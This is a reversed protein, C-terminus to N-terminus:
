SGLVNSSDVYVHTGSSPVFMEDTIDSGNSSADYFVVAVGSLNHRRSENVGGTVRVAFEERLQGGPAGRQNNGGIIELKAYGYIYTVTSGTLAPNSGSRWLTVTNSGGNMNLYVAADSSTRLSKARTSTTRYIGTNGSEERVYIYGPGTVTYELPYGDRGATIGIPQHAPYTGFAIDNTSDTLGITQFGGSPGTNPHVVYVAFYRSASPSTGPPNDSGDSITVTVKGAGTPRITASVRGNTPLENAQGETATYTGGLTTEGNITTIDGGTVRITFSEADYYITSDVTTERNETITFSITFNSDTVLTGLDGPTTNSIASITLADATGQVSFALVLVMLMGLVIKRTTLNNM